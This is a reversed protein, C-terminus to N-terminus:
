SKKDRWNSEDDADNDTFDDKSFNAEADRSKLDKGIFTLKPTAFNSDWCISPLGDHRGYNRLFSKQTKWLMVEIEDHLLFLSLPITFSETSIYTSRILLHLVPIHLLVPLIIDPRKKM